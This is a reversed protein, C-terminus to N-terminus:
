LGLETLVDTSDGDVVIIEGVVLKDQHHLYFKGGTQKWPFTRNKTAIKRLNVLKNSIGKKPLPTYM